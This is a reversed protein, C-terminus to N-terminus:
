DVQTDTTHGLMLGYETYDGSVLIFFYRRIVNAYDCPDDLLRRLFSRTEIDLLPHYKRINERGLAQQM